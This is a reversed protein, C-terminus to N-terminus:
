AAASLPEIGPAPKDPNLPELGSKLDESNLAVDVVSKVEAHAFILGNKVMDLSKNKELWEAFFAANVNHTMGFGGVADSHNFGNLTVRTRQGNDKQLDLHVGNPLKAAVTVTTTTKENAM